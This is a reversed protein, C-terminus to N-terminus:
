FGCGTFNMSSPSVAKLFLFAVLPNVQAKLSPASTRSSRRAHVIVFRNHHRRVILMTTWRREVFLKTACGGLEDIMYVLGLIALYRLPIVMIAVRMVVVMAGGDFDSM